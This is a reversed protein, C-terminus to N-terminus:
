EDNSEEDHAQQMAKYACIAECHVTDESGAEIWEPVLAKVAAYGMKPTPERPAVWNKSPLTGKGNCTPCDYSEPALERLWGQGLCEGCEVEALGLAKLVAQAKALGYERPNDSLWDVEDGLESPHPAIATAVKEVLDKM